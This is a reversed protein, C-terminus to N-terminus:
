QYGDNRVATTMGPDRRRAM